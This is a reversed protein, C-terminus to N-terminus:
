KRIARYVLLVLIAGVFPVLIQGILGSGTQIKLLNFIFDSVVGGIIGAIIAGLLSVRVSKVVLSALWGAIGGIIIWVLLDMYEGKSISHEIEIINGALIIFIV